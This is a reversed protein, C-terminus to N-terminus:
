ASVKGAARLQKFLKFGHKVFSFTKVSATGGMRDRFHIPVWKIKSINACCVSVFINALHFDKPVKYAFQKLVNTYILATRTSLFCLFYGIM